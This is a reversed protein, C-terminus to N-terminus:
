QTTKTVLLATPTTGYTFNDFYITQTGRQRRRYTGIDIGLYPKVEHGDGPHSGPAYGWFGRYDVKKVGNLWIDISGPESSGDARPQLALGVNIWVGREITTRYLIQEKGGEKTEIEDDRYGFNLEVPGKPNVNPTVSMTFPPHGGCCQWVQMHILWNHPTEYGKDLMFSYSLYHLTNKSTIDFHAPSAHPVADFFIKDKVNEDEGSTIQIGLSRKDSPADNNPTHQDLWVKFQTGIDVTFPTNSRSVGSDNLPRAINFYFPKSQDRATFGSEDISYLKSFDYGVSLDNAKATQGIAQSYFVGLYISGVVFSKRANWSM